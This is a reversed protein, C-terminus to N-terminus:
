YNVKIRPDILESNEFMVTDDLYEIVVRNQKFKEMLHKTLNEIEIKLIKEELPFKPYNIFNLNLHSEVQGSLIIDCLSLSVSLILNSDKILQNQYVQIAEILESKDILRQTYSIELGITVKAHFPKISAKKLNM